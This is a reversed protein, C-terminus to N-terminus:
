RDEQSASSGLHLRALTRTLPAGCEACRDPEYDSPYPGHGGVCRWEPGDPMYGFGDEGRPASNASNM